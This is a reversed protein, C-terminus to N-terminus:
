KSFRIAIAELRTSSVSAIITGGGYVPIGVVSNQQSSGAMIIANAGVEKAKEKLKVFLEEESYDGGEVSIKGIITHQEQPENWYIKLSNTPEYTATEDTSLYNVTACGTLMVILALFFVKSIIKM